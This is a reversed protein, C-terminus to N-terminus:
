AYRGQHIAGYPIGGYFGLGSLGNATLASIFYDVPIPESRQLIGQTALSALVNGMQSTTLATKGPLGAYYYAWQDADLLTQVGTPSYTGGAAAVLQVNLAAAPPSSTLPATCIGGVLTSPALCPTGAPTTTGTATSTTTGTAPPTTVPAVTSPFLSAFWGQEYGYWALAGIGALAILSTYNEQAM